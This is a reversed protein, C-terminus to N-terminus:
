RTGALSPVASGSNYGNRRIKCGQALWRGGQRLDRPLQTGSSPAPLKTKGPLANSLVKCTPVPTELLVLCKGFRQECVSAQKTSLLMQCLGALSSGATPLWM